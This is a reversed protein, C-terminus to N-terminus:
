SPSGIPAKLRPDSREKRTAAPAAASDGAGAATVSPQTESPRRKRPRGPGRKHAIVVGAQLIEGGWVGWPERRDLAGTLCPIQQRCSICLKKAYEMEHPVDSFFKDAQGGVCPPSEAEPHLDADAPRAGRHVNTAEDTGRMMQRFSRATAAIAAEFFQQGQHALDPRACARAHGVLCSPPILPLDSERYVVVLRERRGEGTSPLRGSRGSVWRSPSPTPRLDRTNTM